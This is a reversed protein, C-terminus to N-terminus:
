EQRTMVRRQLMEVKYVRYGWGVVGIYCPGPGPLCTALVPALSSILSCQVQRYRVQHQYRRYVRLGQLSSEEAAAVSSRRCSSSDESSSSSDESSRSSSSDEAAATKRSDEAATKQEAEANIQFMLPM